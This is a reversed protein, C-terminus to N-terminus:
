KAVPASPRDGLKPQANPQPCVPTPTHLRRDGRSVSERRRGDTWSGLESTIKRTEGCPDNYHRLFNDDACADNTAQKSWEREETLDTMQVERGEGGAPRPSQADGEVAMRAHTLRNPDNSVRGSAIILISLPTMGLQINVRCASCRTQLAVHTEHPIATVSCHLM